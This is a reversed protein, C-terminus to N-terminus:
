KIVTRCLGFLPRTFGPVCQCCPRCDGFGAVFRRSASKDFTSQRRSTRSQRRHRPRCQRWLEHEVRDVKDFTPLKQRGFTSRGKSKTALIYPALAVRDVKSLTRSQRRQTRAKYAGVCWVEFFAIYSFHHTVTRDCDDFNTVRSVPRHLKRYYYHSSARALLLRLRILYIIEIISSDWLLSDGVTESIKRCTEFDDNKGMATLVHFHTGTIASSSFWM